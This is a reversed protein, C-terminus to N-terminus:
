SKLQDESVEVWKGDERIELKVKTLEREVISDILAMQGNRRLTETRHWKKFEPTEVMKFFADRKNELQSRSSESYGRAGSPDHICHVASSTKNRKQGGAGSGKTYSWRCDNATVSFLIEKKNDM